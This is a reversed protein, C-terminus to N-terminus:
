GMKTGDEHILCPVQGMPYYGEKKLKGFQPFTLYNDEFEVQCYSLAMRISIARGHLGFYDLRM